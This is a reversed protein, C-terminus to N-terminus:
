FRLSFIGIIYEIYIKYVNFVKIMIRFYLLNYIYILEILLFLIIEKVVLKEKM